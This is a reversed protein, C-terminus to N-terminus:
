ADYGQRALECNARVGRLTASMVIAVWWERRGAKRRWRRECTQTEGCEGGYGQLPCCGWSVRVALTHGRAVSQQSQVARFATRQTEYGGSFAVREPHRHQREGPKANLFHQSPASMGPEPGAYNTSPM